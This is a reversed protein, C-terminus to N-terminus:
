RALDLMPDTTASGDTFSVWDADFRQYGDIDAFTLEHTGLVDVEALEVSAGLDSWFGEIDDEIASKVDPWGEGRAHEHPVAVILRVQYPTTEPLERLTDLRLYVGQVHNSHKALCAEWDKRSHRWRLDFAGPFASRYYRKALWESILRRPKDPLQARPPEDTLLQRPIFWREHVVLSLGQSVGEIEVVLQLSRPNRGATFTRDPRSARPTARLVEVFPENTLAHNVVDCDHSTVILWDGETCAVHSPALARANAALLPGLVAGQRWGLAEIASADFPPRTPESGSAGGDNNM